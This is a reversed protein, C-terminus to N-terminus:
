NINICMAVGMIVGGAKLTVEGDSGYDCGALGTMSYSGGAKAGFEAKSIMILDQMSLLTISGSQTVVGLEQKATGSMKAGAKMDILEKCMFENDKDASFSANNGADVTMTGCHEWALCEPPACLDTSEKWEICCEGSCCVSIDTGAGFCIDNSAHVSFDVCDFRVEKTASITIDGAKQKIHLQGGAFFIESNGSQDQLRLTEGADDFAIVHGCRSKSFWVNNKGDGGSLSEPKLDVTELTPGGDHGSLSQDDGPTTPSPISM